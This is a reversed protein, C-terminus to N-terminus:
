DGRQNKWDRHIRDFNDVLWQDFGDASASRITLTLDQKGRKFRGLPEGADGLLSEGAEARKATGKAAIGRRREDATTLATILSNFRRDSNDGISLAALETDSWDLKEALDALKSWRDRGVSPAAGICEILGISIRDVASLMRSIVTKDVHLADCIAQRDYNADRMQRAFNAKEIFSLDKRAANEQGQAMVLAQDDLDRIMAKVPQGLDRMALVRRRGFVIQYKGPKVPHPRLLVPVQQGYSKISRALVALDAEDADLRDTMGGGEIDMPDIEIVSRSKLDAISQSVAGIAGKTYRPKATDLRARDPEAPAPAQPASKPPTMLGDLLNKRAMLAGM